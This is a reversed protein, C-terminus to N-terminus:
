LIKRGKWEATKSKSWIVSRIGLIFMLLIQFPHLILNLLISQRSLYSIFVRSFLFITVPLVFIPYYFFLIIPLFFVLLLITIIIFFVIISTNFGPSFNKSFGNFADIFSDYMRCFVIEGGLLTEMKLKKSKLLRAFEIDEVVKQAVTSHGGIESYAERKWLMFQGNAAAFLRNSSTYVKRLPLFSLLIWNMLPVIFYEGLSKMEQTPFISLLSINKEKIKNLSSSLANNSLKVDADIFLLYDGNAKNALQNCAWNKGLWNDPLAKGEILKIRQDIEIQKLVIDETKDISEDNLVLIELNRHSQNELNKLCNLINSEENRAPILVSVFDNNVTENTRIIPSTISNYIVVCLSIVSVIITFYLIIM